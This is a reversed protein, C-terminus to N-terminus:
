NMYPCRSLDGGAGHYQRNADRRYARLTYGIPRIDMDTTTVDIQMIGTQTNAEGTIHMVATLDKKFLKYLGDVARSFWSRPEGFKNVKVTADLTLGSLSNGTHEFLAGSHPPVDLYSVDGFKTRYYVRALSLLSDIEDCVTMKGTVLMDDDQSVDLLSFRAGFKLASTANETDGVMWPDITNPHVFYQATNQRLIPHAPVAGPFPGFKM